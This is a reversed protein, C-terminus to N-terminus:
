VGHPTFDGQSTLALLKLFQQRIHICGVTVVMRLVASTPKPTLSLNMAQKTVKQQMMTTSRYPETKEDRFNLYHHYRGQLHNQLNIIIYM